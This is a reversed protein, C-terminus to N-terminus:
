QPSHVEVQSWIRGTRQIGKGKGRRTRKRMRKVEEGGREEM